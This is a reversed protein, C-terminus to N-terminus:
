IKVISVPNLYSKSQVPFSLDRTADCLFRRLVRHIADCQYKKALAKSMGQRITLNLVKKM